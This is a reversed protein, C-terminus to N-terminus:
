NFNSSDLLLLSMIASAIHKRERKTHVPDSAFDELMDVIDSIRELEPATFTNM